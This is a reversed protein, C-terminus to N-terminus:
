EEGAEPAQPPEENGFPDSADSTRQTGTIIEPARVLEHPAGTGLAYGGLLGAVGVFTAWVGGAV